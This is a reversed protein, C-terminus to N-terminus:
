GEDIETQNAIEGEDENLKAKKALPGEERTTDHNNWNLHKGHNTVHEQFTAAEDFVGECGKWLCILRKTTENAM